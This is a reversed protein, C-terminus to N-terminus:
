ESDDAPTIKILKASLNINSFHKNLIEEEAM